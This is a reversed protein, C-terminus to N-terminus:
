SMSWARMRSKISVTSIMDWLVNFTQGEVHVEPETCGEGRLRSFIVKCRENCDLLIQYEMWLGLRRWHSYHWLIHPVDTESKRNDRGREVCGRENKRVFDEVFSEKLVNM